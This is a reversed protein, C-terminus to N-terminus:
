RRPTRRRRFSHAVPRSPYTEQARSSGYEWGGAGRDSTARQAEPWRPGDGFVEKIVCSVKHHNELPNTDARCIRQKMNSGAVERVTIGTLGSSRIAEKWRELHESTLTDVWLTTGNGPPGFKNEGNNSSARAVRDRNLQREGQEAKRVIGLYRNHGKRFNIEIFDMPYGGKMLRARFKELYVWAYKQQSCRCRIRM